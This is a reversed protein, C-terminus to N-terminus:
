YLKGEASDKQPNKFSGVASSVFKELGEINPPKANGIFAKSVIIKLLPQLFAIMTRREQTHEIPKVLQEVDKRKNISCILVRQNAYCNESCWRYERQFRYFVTNRM